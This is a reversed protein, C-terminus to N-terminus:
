KESPGIKVTLKFMARPIWAYSALNDQLEEGEESTNQLMDTATVTVLPGGTYYTGVEVGFGVRGKPVARGFGFGLYPAIGAYDIDVKIEGIEDADIQLDGYGVGQNLRIRTDANLNALYALGGIIKFSSYRSPLWEAFAGFTMVSLNLNINVDQGSLDLDQAFDSISLMSFRGVLNLNHRLNYAYDFGLGPLGAHVAIASKGLFKPSPDIRERKPASPKESSSEEQASLSASLVLSLALILHKKMTM